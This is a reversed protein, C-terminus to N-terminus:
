LLNQSRKEEFPELVALNNTYVGKYSMPLTDLIVEKAEEGDEM